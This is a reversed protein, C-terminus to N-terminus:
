PESSVIVTGTAEPYRRSHYHFTGATPFSRVALTTQGPTTAAFPAINGSGSNPWPYYTSNASDVALSDDFVVDVSDGVYNNAWTVNGGVGVTVTSPSFSLVRMASTPSASVNVNVFEFITPNGIVFPLSDRWVVGYAVTTAYFTVGGTQLEPYSSTIDGSSSIPARIPDSSTFYVLLPCGSANCVTDRGQDTAYVPLVLDSVLFWDVSRKASDGVAPHITFTALPFSPATATVQIKVTDQLTVNQYQLTAVVFTLATTYHATVLGTPSVTVSSDSATYTAASAGALPAGVVNRATATLQITDYPATLAMNVAHQNFQLMWFPQPATPTPGTTDGSCSVLCCGLLTVALLRFSLHPPICPVVRGGKHAVRCADM